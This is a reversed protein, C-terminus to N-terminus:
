EEIPIFEVSTTIKHKSNYEFRVSRHQEFWPDHIRKNMVEESKYILTYILTLGDESLYGSGEVPLCDKQYHELYYAHAKSVPISPDQTFVDTPWLSLEPTQYLFSEPPHFPIDISPRTMKYYERYATM